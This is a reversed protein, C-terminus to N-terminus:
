EQPVYCESDQDWGAMTGHKLMHDLRDLAVQKDTRDDAHGYGEGDDDWLVGRYSFLKRADYYEMDFFKAGALYECAGDYWPAKDFTSTPALHLGEAKFEPVACAWGLVCAITGCMPSERQWRDLEVAEDPTAAIVDRLTQLREINM